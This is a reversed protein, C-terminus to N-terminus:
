QLAEKDGKKQLDVGVVLERPTGRALATHRDGGIALLENLRARRACDESGSLLDREKKSEKPTQHKASSRRMIIAM